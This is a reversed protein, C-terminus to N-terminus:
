DYWDFGFIDEPDDVNLQEEFMEDCWKECEDQTFIECGQGFDPLIYECINIREFDIKAAFADWATPFIRNIVEETCKEPYAYYNRNAFETAKEFKEQFSYSQWLERAKEKKWM